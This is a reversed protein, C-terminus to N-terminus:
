SRKKSRRFLFRWLWRLRKAKKRKTTRLDQLKQLRRCELLHDDIEKLRQATKKREQEALKTESMRARAAEIMCITVTAQDCVDAYLNCLYALDDLIAIREPEYSLFTKSAHRMLETYALQIAKWIVKGPLPRLCVWATSAIRQVLVQLQCGGRGPM